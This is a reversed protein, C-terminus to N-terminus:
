IDGLIIGYSNTSPWPLAMPIDVSGHFQFTQYPMVMYIVGLQYTSALLGTVMTKTTGSREIVVPALYADGGCIYLREGIGWFM